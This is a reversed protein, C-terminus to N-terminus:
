AGRFVLDERDFIKTCILLGLVAFVVLSVYVEALLMTDTTGALIAKTALSVNLIPILATKSTLEMGPLLGIFAPVIVAIMLPNIISQAEKFSKAFISLSLQISAFFVVLPLLLSILLIISNIELISMITQLLEPPIDRAQTIGIYLGLLSIVASLIGTM